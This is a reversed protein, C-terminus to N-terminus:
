QKKNLSNKIEELLVNQEKLVDVQEKYVDILFSFKEEFKSLVKKNDYVQEHLDSLAKLIFDADFSDLEVINNKFDVNKNEIKNEDKTHQIIINQLRLIEEKLSDISNKVIEFDKEFFDEKNKDNSEIVDLFEKDFDEVVDNKNDIIDNITKSDNKDTPKDVNKKFFAM